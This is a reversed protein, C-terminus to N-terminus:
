KGERKADFVTTFLREGIKSRIGYLERIRVLRALQNKARSSMKLLAGVSRLVRGQSGLNMKHSSNM